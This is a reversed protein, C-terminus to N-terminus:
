PWSFIWFGTLIRIWSDSPGQKVFDHWWLLNLHLRISENRDKSDRYPAPVASIVALNPEIIRSCSCFRCEPLNLTHSFHEKVRKPKHPMGVFQLENYVPQFSKLTKKPIGNHKYFFVPLETLTRWKFSLLSTFTGKSICNFSQSPINM